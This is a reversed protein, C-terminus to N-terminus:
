NEYISLNKIALQPHKKIWNFSNKGIRITANVRKGEVIFPTARTTDRVWQKVKQFLETNASEEVELLEMTKPNQYIQPFSFQLGWFISEPGMTMPRFVGDIPSYTFFHAQIQIVPKSIKAIFKGNAVPQLWLADFDATMACALIKRLQADTPIKGERIMQIWSDYENLFLSPALPQGDCLGTLPFLTFSEKFLLALEQADCLVQYKLFKSGQYLGEKELTSIRLTM